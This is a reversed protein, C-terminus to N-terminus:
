KKKILFPGFKMLLGVVGLSTDILNRSSGIGLVHDTNAVKLTAGYLIQIPAYNTAIAAGHIINVYLLTGFTQYLVTTVKTAFLTYGFFSIVLAFVVTKSYFAVGTVEFSRGDHTTYM